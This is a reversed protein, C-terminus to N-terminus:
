KVLGMKLVLRVLRDNGGGPANPVVVEVRKAPKWEAAHAPMCAALVAVLWTVLIRHKM